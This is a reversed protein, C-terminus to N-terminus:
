LLEDGTFAELELGGWFSPQCFCEISQFLAALSEAVRKFTNSDIKHMKFFFLAKGKSM